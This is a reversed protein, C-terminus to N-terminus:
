YTLSRIFNTMRELVVERAQLHPVHGCSPVIMEDVPGRVGGVIAKIQAETGYEDDAGQIALLPCAIDSLSPEINWNRFWSASWMKSWAGFMTATQDGHYRELRSRFGEDLWAQKAAKVGALSEPEVFVHAAETIVGRVPTRGAHLLAITGGDSHGILIVDSLGCTSHLAPLVHHAEIEFFSLDRDKDESSSDGHGFRDYVLAPCGASAALVSPYDKWMGICGLGEHLFVLTPASIKANEPVIRRIAIMRGLVVVHSVEDHFSATAFIKNSM